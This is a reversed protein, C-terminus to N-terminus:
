ARPRSGLPYVLTGLVEDVAIASLRAGEIKPAHPRQIHEKGRAIAARPSRPITTSSHRHASTALRNEHISQPTVRQYPGALIKPGFTRVYDSGPKGNGLGDLLVGSPGALGSPAMGNVVLKYRAHLNLRTALHLTVTNALSNYVAAAIRIRGGLHGKPSIPRLDYNQVDQALTPALASSFTLVFATPQAHFGFRELSTVTPSIAPAGPMAILEVGDIKGSPSPDYQDVHTIMASNTLSGASAIRALIVLTEPSGVSVAGVNWLGTSSDYTGQSPTASVFSAGAPLVDTVQVNTARDPGDNGLTVTYTITDGVTPIPDNVVKNLTLDAQQPTVVSTATNNAPNPDFQDSHAITATNTQPDPSMVTARVVLTQPTSTIVSGVTWLGTSNDYTGESPSASVFVVGDPLEDRVAVNTANTPGLNSLTVTYTVTEGVNPTPDSVVKALALDAEQSTEPASASNNSTDPDFQDSNTITATNIIQGADVVTGRLVLTLPASMTVSGVTWLGSVSNYTGDSPTASVLNVGAPLPDTVQVNTASDPGINSLTVTYTITDGVNPAGDSVRKTLALDAQQPTLSATATNNNTVPDFQDAHTITATNAQPDPSTVTAQILLTQASTTTVAGVNWVGTSSDYTGQSPTDSVFTLGSPLLDTVDVNTAGNPGINSVTITYTVTGGVNPTANSVSKALALDAQQPTLSVTATNNATVPDFQDAHTITATNAQPLHSMVTAEILLTQPSTTSVAGVNWVGTGSDYTGQSPMDSVFSLGAPLLDTVDVDTAANPGNNSLTVTYTITRGVNPTGDSVSKALALDAQQPTVSVSATNNAANPDFEDSHTITAVNTTGGPSIVNAIIQLTQSGGASVTGVTWLGTTPDYTGESPTESFLSLGAPLADAVAVNTSDNPGLNSLGITFTVMDGVNPKPNDVTKTLFLDAQEPSDPAIATNNAPNPDFQDAKTITAVNTVANASAVMAEISLTQPVGVSVTGVSWLGSAFDYAGQSTAYSVFTLGTPLLDTVEANTASDPGIDTLTITFTVTEGVNPTPDSTTKSLALDAQQPTLTTTATNNATVPDFQDSHTITAVNTQPDPSSVTAEVTLTQPSGVDVTGVTWLGTSPDYSGESPLAAVFSLGSPLADLVEVSTANNPGIDSLTVTYTVAGGVNPTSDSVSKSIVLDAQEPTVLISATNNATDPDFQDAHTIAALNTVLGPSTVRATIELTQSMGNSLNGVTWGGTASNYSGVSPSASIPVLGAPLTDVVDVNTANDPGNDTVTITYTITDGVNPTSNSVTKTIAVDAQQPTEVATATNNALNPDYQDAGTITVSNTTPQPSVVTALIVLTQPSAPNVSGVAWIGTTPDFSGQSPAASIFSLGPPLPERVVIHTAANTAIDPGINSLTVTYSIVDGVNPTPNSVTKTVALDAQEPVVLVLARNNGPVPDFQDAGSITATNTSSNPLSVTAMINLTQATALNVSGVTWVGTTSDYTGESPIASDFTLGPPLLDSVSVGTANNPGNDGVSVIFTVTDGVNPAANDVSKTVFLDAQQPTVVTSAANNGPNPDVQDAHIIMATNTSPNPSEVTATVTLVASLGNDLTGVTWIGSSEDYTGQGANASVFSLGAPLMDELTVNTANSPGNDSVTVSYTITNGVNPTSNDVTKTVSLNAEQPNESTTATNNSTVPDFQDAHSITATNVTSGASIVDAQIQLTQTVTTVVTGVTWLGSIPDYIGQSPVAALFLLGAPLLDGVQVNTASDPGNDALTITYSITDGVNPTPDNVSKSIVLDAQQPTETATASLNGSNPDFQDAHTITATNTQASPGAAFATPADSSPLEPSSQLAGPGLVIAEIVLTQPNATNVTGVDWLGTTPNYTGQSPTDSVLSLGAPLLDTVQVNTASDPGSNSLTVTFSISDGVNPTPDNVTKSIALNARQPTEVVGATNNAAVPDFQDSHTVTATNTQPNPSVVQAVLVLTLPSSTNVTGVSWIGSDPDYTGESPTASVLSLGLPLLDTVEASTATSPGNDSLTVTFTITDGVNPTPDSVANSVALDAQQPTAAASAINNATNPDFQDARVITATNSAATPSAVIATLVLTPPASTIVAGVNWLGTGSNYTGQSPVAAVFSLGSPLLDTVQVGTANSPGNDTLTVTYTITEGVNPTPDSVTKTLALDAQQPTVDVNATNNNADPDFQDAHSITATNTSHNPSSVAAQVVLTQAASLNVTGITWTGTGSSYSGQSPSASVFTLGAPLLDQVAVGTATNPGADRVTVTYAITDGVNPTPSNVTKSVVLDAQQPTVVTGATNNGINPDFQNAGTIQAINTSASANAVVASITLLASSGNAVSGVSWVGSTASYAGQTPVAAVFTLGAPLSDQVIVGTANSPGNDALTVTYTITDGVNPTPNNVTKTVSLDAAQPTSTTSATNNATNPDFQDAHAISATNITSNGNIVQAQIRLTRSATTDVTGVTWLGTAADYTGQSPFAAVFLLSSPLLDTVRANTAANPGNDALTITYNIIDGVNPTPNDVSKALSLDAQQPTETATATINATNPDYQDSHTITASNTQASSGVVMAQITLTRTGGAVDVTGVTWVGTGSSYSGQSAVSSVFSLGAPLTDTVAVNTATNPGTDRVSLTFSITDGVNPTPNNVTKAFVLNAQQPTDTASATNNGTNPDSQDSHTVVATNTLTNPSAVRANIVLTQATITTVTGVTWLGTAATYTGESATASVFTLGAPLLDTVQVNTAPSPGLNALNLTYAVTDGVNPTPNSLVKTLSLDALPHVLFSAVSSLVSLPFGSTVGVATITAQNNVVTQDPTNQNVRVDFEITTTAGIALTGGTTANAGSGLRFVVDNNASSFEAQDDGAVDTKAGANAGSVIQLTGAVYQTNAPILDTLVVNKASDQGTNSVAVSYQIVDGPQVPGSTNTLDTETKTAVVQPAYLNIATTVVGPFYQDQTTQLQFTAGTAGNPLIGSANVIKADFGLQNVYNPTKATVAVGLNTIASNFFNNAPNLNDSLPVSNLSMSDGTFGLDGEYAVVGVKANVAGTPPTVFGNISGTVASQGTNISAYGDFVTLNRAPLGPAEYAVVLSWGAYVNTGVSAQVNAVTYTGNGAAAVQSTVNAFSQYDVGDSTTSTGVVVGTISTYGTSGPAAFKVQNELSVQPNRGGWYLGAFLVTAGSPLSLSASSSDFTTADHDVDVFVMSFDNNNVNSGVGNQANIASPDSAPATMMTNAVIAIDGTANTTFRPQFPTIVSLLTRSELVDASILWSRKNGAHPSPIRRSPRRGPLHM